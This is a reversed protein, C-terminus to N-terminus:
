DVSDTSKATFDVDRYLEYFPISIGVEPLNLTSDAGALTERVFSDGNRRFITVKQEDPEALIYVQLSPITIYDRFKQVEDNRRTSPSLVELIVTPEDTFHASGSIPSCVIAGDPYYFAFDEGLSIRVKFDSTIPSCSKGELTNAANRYFNGGVKQHNMTGGSMAYVRGAIYEHRQGSIEEGGIYDDISIFIEEAALSM